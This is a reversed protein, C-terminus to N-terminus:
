SHNYAHSMQVSVGQVIGGTKIVVIHVSYRV